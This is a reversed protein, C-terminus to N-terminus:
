YKIIKKDDKNIRIKSDPLFELLCSFNKHFEKPIFCIDKHSGELIYDFLVVHINRESDALAPLTMYFDYINRKYTKAGLHQKKFFESPMLVFISIDEVKQLKEVVRSFIHEMHEFTKPM